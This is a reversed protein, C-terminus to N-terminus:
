ARIPIVEATITSKGDCFDAWDSMLRRRRDFMDTRRYAAEVKNGVNHALALEAVESPYNTREAAWDRFSSRFGHITIDTRNMRILLAHMAMASLRPRRGGSFVYEGDRPLKDLLAMAAASLPM